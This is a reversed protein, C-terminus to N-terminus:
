VFFFMVAEWGNKRDLWGQFRSRGQSPSMMERSTAMTQRSLSFRDPAKRNVVWVGSLTLYSGKVILTHKAQAWGGSEEPSGARRGRLGALGEGPAISM